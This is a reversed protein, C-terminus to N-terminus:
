VRDDILMELMSCDFTPIGLREGVNKRESFSDDIFIANTDHICDAKSESQTIYCVQDFIEAIRHRELTRDVVSAHRTVLVIRIGANLCQYLFKVLDLNVKDRVILTDDLDVYVTRYKVNHRYRNVLARDIEVSVDNPRIEIPINEQEYISLLPFNVGLVRHLAMTGAIRPAIELLKYEGQDDKKLQFFWAGRFSLKSSIARAYEMFVSDRVPKSNMSIGGKTRVRRRGGCFLIGRDQTSFCDVTCEEGPLLEMIITDNRQKLLSLLQGRDYVVRADQSGQGRDPKAFVPYREVGDISDYTTPVPIVDRLLGYTQSKSRTILCTEPPSSVIRAKIQQSNKALAALVDDHAPFVYDIGQQVILQNLCEIWSPGHVSPVLYHRQFAYPAHNSIDMGASFLRIDKCNGLARQIELAIETGGPFVLVERVKM